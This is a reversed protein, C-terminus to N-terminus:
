VTSASSARSFVASNRAAIAPAPTAGVSAPPRGPETSSGTVGWDGPSASRIQHPDPVRSVAIQAPSCPMFRM